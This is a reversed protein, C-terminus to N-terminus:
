GVFLDHNNLDLIGVQMGPTSSIWTSTLPKSVDQEVFGALGNLLSFGVGAQILIVAIIDYELPIGCCSGEAYQIFAGHSM